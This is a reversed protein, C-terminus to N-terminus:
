EYDTKQIEQMTIADCRFHVWLQKRFDTNVALENKETLYSKFILQEIASKDSEIFFRRLNGDLYEYLSQKGEILVRLFLHEEKFLPARELSLEDNLESSRDIKVTKRIYRSLGIVGFEAVSDITMKVPQDAESQIFLFDSPNRQWDINKILGETRQGKNNIYYGKEYTIQSYINTSLIIIFLILLSKKFM